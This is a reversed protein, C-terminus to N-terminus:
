VAQRMTISLLILPECPDKCMLANRCPWPTRTFGFPVVSETLFCDCFYPLGDPWHRLDALNNVKYRQKKRDPLRTFSHRIDDSNALKDEMKNASFTTNELKAAEQCSPDPKADIQVQELKV